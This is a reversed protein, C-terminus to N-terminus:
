NNKKRKRNLYIYIIGTVVIFTPIALLYNFHFVKYLYNENFARRGNYLFYNTEGFHYGIILAIFTGIIISSIIIEDTRLDTIGIKKIRRIIQNEFLNKARNKQINLKNNFNINNKVRFVSNEKIKPYTEKVRISVSLYTYWIVFVLISSVTNVKMQYEMEKILEIDLGTIKPFINQIIGHFLFFILYIKTIKVAYPKILVLSIGAWIGFITLIVISISELYILKKLGNIENFYSHSIAFETYLAFFNRLPSGFILLFCLIYLWGGIGNYKKKVILEEM